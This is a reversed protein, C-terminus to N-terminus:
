FNIIAERSYIERPTIKEGVYEADVEYDSNFKIKNQVKKILAERKGELM